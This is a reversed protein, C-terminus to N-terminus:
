DALEAVQDFEFPEFFRLIKTTITELLAAVRATAANIQHM